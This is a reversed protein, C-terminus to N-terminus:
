QKWSLFWVALGMGVLGSLGLGADGENNGGAELSNDEDKDLKDEDLDENEVAVPPSVPLPNFVENRLDVMSKVMKGMGQMVEAPNKRDKKRKILGSKILEPITSGIKSIMPKLAEVIGEEQEQEQQNEVRQNEISETLNEIGETWVQRDQRILKEWIQREQQREQEQREWQQEQGRKLARIEAERRERRVNEEQEQLEQQRKEQELRRIEDIEDIEDVNVTQDYRSSSREYGSSSREPTRENNELIYWYRGQKIAEIRGEEIWRRITRTSRGVEKAYDACLIM